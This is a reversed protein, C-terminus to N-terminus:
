AAIRGALGAFDAAVSSFERNFAARNGSTIGAMTIAQADVVVWLRRHTWYFSLLLGLTTVVFGAWILGAGPNTRVSLGTVYRPEVGALVLDSLLTGQHRFEPHRQFLWASSAPASGDRSSASMPVISSAASGAAPSSPLGAATANVLRADSPYLAVKVAPNRMEHSASVVKGGSLRFDAVFEQVEIRRGDPLTTPQRYPIQTPTPDNGIRLSVWAVQDDLARYSSQYFSVGAHRLPHNVSVVQSRDGRVPDELEITARYQLIEGRENRPIAFDVLRITFGRDMGAWVEGPALWVQESRGLLGSVMGGGILCLLGLHTLYPGFRSFGGRTAALATQGAGAETRVSYGHRRLLRRVQAADAPAAGAPL